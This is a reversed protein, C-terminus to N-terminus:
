AVMPMRFPYRAAYMAALQQAEDPRAPPADAHRARIEARMAPLRALQDAQLAQPGLENPDYLEVGYVEAYARAWLRAEADIQEGYPLAARGGWQSQVHRVAAREWEHDLTPPAEIAGAAVRIIAGSALEFSAARHDQSVLRAPEWIAALAALDAPAFAASGRERQRRDFEEEEFHFLFFPQM